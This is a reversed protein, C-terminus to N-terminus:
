FILTKGAREISRNYHVLLLGTIVLSPGLVPALKLLMFLM